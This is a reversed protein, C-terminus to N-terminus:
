IHQDWYEAMKGLLGSVSPMDSFEVSLSRCLWAADAASFNPKMRERWRQIESQMKTQAGLDESEPGSPKPLAPPEPITLTELPQFGSTTSEDTGVIKEGVLQTTEGFLSQGADTISWSQDPDMEVFGFAELRVLAHSVQRIDKITSQEYISRRKGSGGVARLGRITERQQYSLQDLTLGNISM